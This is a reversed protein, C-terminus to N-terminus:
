AKWSTRQSITCKLTNGGQHQGIQLPAHIHDIRLNSQALHPKEQNQINKSNEKSKKKITSLGIQQHMERLTIVMTKIHNTGIKLHKIEKSLSKLRM